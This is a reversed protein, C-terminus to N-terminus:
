ACVLAQGLETAVARVTEADLPGAASCLRATKRPPLVPIGRAQLTGFLPWDGDVFCLVGRVPIGSAVIERVVKLQRAIGDLLKSQDRGGVLLHETREAFLGGRREVTIRGKYRKADIVLVGAAGVAIHDINARSGLVRRDHLLIVGADATWRELKGALKAEGLAGKAWATQHAPEDAFFLAPGALQGFRQRFREERRDRRREYERRASAGPTSRLADPPPLV